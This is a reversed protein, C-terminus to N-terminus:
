NRAQQRGKGEWVITFIAQDGNKHLLQKFNFGPWKATLHVFWKLMIGQHSSNKYTCINNRFLQNRKCLILYINVTYVTIQIYSYTIQIYSHM